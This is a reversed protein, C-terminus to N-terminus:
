DKTQIERARNISPASNWSDMAKILDTDDTPILTYLASAESRGTASAGPAKTMYYKYKTGDITIYGM